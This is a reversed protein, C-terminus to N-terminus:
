EEADDPVFAVVRTWGASAGQLRVPFAVVWFGHPAPLQDLGSIKEIQCYEKERGLIHSEWLQDPDGRRAEAIMVDFPRDLGWADIGILRVGQDVLWETASRRLGAHMHEYSPEKFHRSADTRMLVVDFPNLQYGIEALRDRVDSDTIGYGPEKDTMDVVVGSGCCWRLPVEEITRASKGDVRPGYHSPADIHSGSHTSLTVTEVAWGAGEPWTAPDIGFHQEAIAPSEAPGVYDIRHLNPEFDSSVNSLEDSLDILKFRRDFLEVREFSGDNVMPLSYVISM